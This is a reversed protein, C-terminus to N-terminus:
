DASLDDTPQISKNFGKLVSEFLQNRFDAKTKEPMTHRDYSSMVSFYTQYWKTLAREVTKMNDVVEKNSTSIHANKIAINLRITATGLEGGGYVLLGQALQNLKAIHNDVEDVHEGLLEIVEFLSVLYQEARKRIEKANENANSASLVLKDKEIQAKASELAYNSTLFSAGLAGVLAVLATM